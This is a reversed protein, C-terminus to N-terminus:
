GERSSGAALAQRLLLVEGSPDGQDLRFAKEGNLLIQSDSLASRLQEAFPELAASILAV